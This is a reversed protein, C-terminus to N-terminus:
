QKSTTEDFLSTIGGVQQSQITVLILLGAIVTANIQLLTYKSIPNITQIIRINHIRPKNRAYRLTVVVACWITGAWIAYVFPQIASEAM